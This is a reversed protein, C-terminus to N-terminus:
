ILEFLLEHVQYSLLLQLHGPEPFLIQSDSDQLALAFILKFAEVFLDLLLLLGLLRAMCINLFEFHLELAFFLLDNADLLVQETGLLM